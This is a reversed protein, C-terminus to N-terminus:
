FIDLFRMPKHSYISEQYEMGHCKKEFEKKRFNMKKSNVNMQKTLINFASVTYALWFTNNM